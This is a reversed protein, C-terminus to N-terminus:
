VRQVSPPNVFQGARAAKTGNGSQKQKPRRRGHEKLPLLKAGRSWKEIEGIMVGVQGFEHCLTPRLEETLEGAEPRRLAIWHSKLRMAFLRKAATLEIPRLALLVGLNVSQM